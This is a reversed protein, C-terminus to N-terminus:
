HCHRQGYCSPGRRAAEGSKNESVGAMDSVNEILHDESQASTTAAAAAATDDTVVSSTVATWLEGDQRQWDAEWSKNRQVNQYLKNNKLLWNLAKKVVDPRVMQYMFHGKYKLQRKLKIRILGATDPIRPLLSCVRDFKAPVNVVPGHLSRQRGRPLNVLKMFPIRTALLQRELSTLHQLPEPIDDLQLGNAVAQCPMKGAKLATDCTCCVYTKGASNVHLHKPAFIQSYLDSNLKSYKKTLDVQEMKIQKVSTEYLLRHCVTCVYDPGRRKAANFAASADNIDSDEVNHKKGKSKAEARNGRHRTADKQKRQIQNDPNEEAQRVKQCEANRQKRQLKDDPNEEARRVRQCEANRQKRQLKDDPNEEARRVRQCEANSQKRQEEERINEQARALRKRKTDDDRRLNRQVSPESQRGTKHREADSRRRQEQQSDTEDTRRRKDIEGRQQRRLASSKRKIRPM